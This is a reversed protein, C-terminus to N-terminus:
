EEEDHPYFVIQYSKDEGHPKHRLVAKCNMGHDTHAKAVHYAIIGNLTNYEYTHLIGDYSNIVQYVREEDPMTTKGANGLTKMMPFKELIYEMDKMNSHERLYPPQRNSMLLLAEEFAQGMILQGRMSFMFDLAEENM